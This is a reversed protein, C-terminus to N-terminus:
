LRHSQILSASFVCDSECSAAHFLFLFSYVVFSSASWAFSSCRGFQRFRLKICIINVSRKCNWKTKLIRFYLFSIHSECLQYQSYPSCSCIQRRFVKSIYFHEAQKCNRVILNLLNLANIKGSVGLSV